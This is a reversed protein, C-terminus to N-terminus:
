AARLALCLECSSPAVGMFGPDHELDVELVSNKSDALSMLLLAFLSCGQLSGFGSLVTCAAWDERTVVWDELNTMLVHPVGFELLKMEVEHQSTEGANGTAGGALRRGHTARRQRHAELSPCGEVNGCFTLVGSPASM